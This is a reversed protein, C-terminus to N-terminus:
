DGSAVVEAKRLKKVKKVPPEVEIKRVPRM